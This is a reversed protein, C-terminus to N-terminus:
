KAPLYYLHPKIQTKLFLEDLGIKLRKSEPERVPTKKTSEEEIAMNRADLSSETVVLQKGTEAPWKVGNLSTRCKHFPEM